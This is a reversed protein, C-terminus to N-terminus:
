NTPNQMDVEIMMIETENQAAIVNKMREVADMGSIFSALIAMFMGAQGYMGSEVARDYLMNLGAEIDDLYQRAQEVTEIPKTIKMINGRLGQM